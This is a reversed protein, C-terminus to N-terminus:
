LDLKLEKKIRVMAAEERDTVSKDSKLMANCVAYIQKRYLMPRGLLTRMAKGFAINSLSGFQYMTDICQNVVDPKDVGHISLFAGVLIKEKARFANDAKAVFYFVMFAEMHEQFVLETKGAETDDYLSFLLGIVNDTKQQHKHNAFAWNINEIFFTRPAMRKYCYANIVGGIGDRSCSFNEVEIMRTTVEGTSKSVYEINLTATLRRGGYQFINLGNGM